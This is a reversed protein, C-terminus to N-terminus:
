NVSLFNALANQTLIFLLCAPLILRVFAMVPLTFSRWFSAFSICISNYKVLLRRSGNYVCLTNVYVSLWINFLCLINLATIAFIPPPGVDILYVLLSDVIAIRQGFRATGEVSCKWSNTWWDQFIAWLLSDVWLWTVLSTCMFIDYKFCPVRRRLTVPQNHQLIIFNNIKLILLIISCLLWTFHHSWVIQTVCILWSRNRSPFSNNTILVCKWQYIRIM